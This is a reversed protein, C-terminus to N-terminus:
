ATLYHPLEFMYCLLHPPLDPLIFMEDVKDDFIYHSYKALARSLTHM